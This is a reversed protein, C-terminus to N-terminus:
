ILYDIRDSRSLLIIEPLSKKDVLQISYEAIKALKPRRHVLAELDRLSNYEDFNLIMGVPKDRNCVVQPEKEAQSILESFQSKANAIKWEM